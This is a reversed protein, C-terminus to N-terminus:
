LQRIRERMATLDSDGLAAKKWSRDLALARRLRREAEPMNGLLCHYCALNYHLTGCNPHLPEAALLVDRAEGIQQMERLAFAWSIWGQDQDPDARALKEGTEAMKPWDQIESYLTCWAALVERRQRDAPALAGLEEAAQATMGLALFGSAYEVRRQWPISM